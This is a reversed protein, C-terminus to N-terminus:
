VWEIAPYLQLGKGVLFGWWHGQRVASCPWCGVQDQPGAQSTGLKPGFGVGGASQLACGSTRRVVFGQPGTGLVMGNPLMAQCGVGGPTIASSLEYGHEIM